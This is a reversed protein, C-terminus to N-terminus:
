RRRRPPDPAERIDTSADGHVERVGAGGCGLDERVGGGRGGLAEARRHRRWWLTEGASM